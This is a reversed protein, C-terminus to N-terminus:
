GSAAAERPGEMQQVGLSELLSPVPLGFAIHLARDVATAYFPKKLFDVVGFYRAAREVGENHNASIMVVRASPCIEQVLCAAELGDLGPMDYDLFIVDYSQQRLLGIALEGNDVVDVGIGFRSAALVKRILHRFTKSDDAVLVRCPEKMRLYNAIIQRIEEEELPKELFEYAEIERLSQECGAKMEQAMLIVLPRVGQQRARAVAEAGNLDPLDMDVFAVAVSGTRMVDIAQAGTEAELIKAKPVITSITAAMVRRTIASADAILIALGAGANAPAAAPRSPAAKM